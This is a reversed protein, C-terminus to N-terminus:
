YSHLFISNDSLIDTTTLCTDKTLGTLRTDSKAPFLFLHFIFPLVFFFLCCGYTQDSEWYTTLCWSDDSSSWCGKRANVCVACANLLRVDYWTLGNSLDSDSTQRGPEARQEVAQSGQALYSVFFFLFFNVRNFM